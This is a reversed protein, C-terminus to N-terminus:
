GIRLSQRRRNVPVWSVHVWGSSPQGEKYFELIVQDFDLNRNIWEHLTKNDLGPVQIDAAHGTLHQSSKAGKVAKNLAASRYGSSVVVAGYQRRVPELVRLCLDTLAKVAAAPPTNDINRRSATQSVVFESLDFNASLKM